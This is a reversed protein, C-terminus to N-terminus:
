RILVEKVPGRRDAKCNIARRADVLQIDFGAYLDFVMAAASNSLIVHVGRAKLALATDRLRVQDRYDFGAAQYGAFNSTTSIPIYPPDFYCFDGAEASSVADVFDGARIDVDQLAWAVALLNNEDCITARPNDGFPVNFVGSQNERFLGNFGVRNCYIFDAAREACSGVDFNKERIALYFEKTNEYTRLHDIVADPDYRLAQYANILKTNADSLTAAGPALEFFVAAGGAFPEFYRNFPPLGELIQDALARKGGVWKVFPRASPPSALNFANNGNM